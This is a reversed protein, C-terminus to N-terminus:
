VLGAARATAVAKLRTTADLKDLISSVHWSVTRQGIFLADAIERDSQGAAVYRLIELERRTLPSVSPSPRDTAAAEEPTVSAALALVEGLPLASGEAWVSAFVEDGLAERLVGLDHETTIADSSIALSLGMRNRLADAAAYLRLATRSQAWTTATSAIGSLATVVLRMDGREGTRVLCAQYREVVQHHDGQDWAVAALDMLARTEALDLGHGAYYRLAEESRATALVADGQTRAVVSLNALVGGLIAARLRADAISLASAHAETLLADAAMLDGRYNAAAGCYLFSIARDFPDSAGQGLRLAEVFAAEAPAAEGRFTLLIAAGLILRLQDPPTAQARKCIARDIWIGGEHLLTFAIWYHCCGAVMAVFDSAPGHDDLWVLAAHLNLEDAALRELPERAAETVVMPRMAQVLASFYGAHSARTAAEESSTLQELGFERITELMRFRPEGDLGVDRVVLSQELLAGLSDIVEPSSRLEAWDAPRDEGPAVGTGGVAEAADLTFGGVCVALQRFLRQEDPNLLDYSWAIADRM